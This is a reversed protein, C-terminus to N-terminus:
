RVKGDVTLIVGPIRHRQPTLSAHNQLHRRPHRHPPKRFHNEIKENEILFDRSQCRCRQLHLYAPKEKQKNVEHFTESEAIYKESCLCRNAGDGRSNRSTQAV